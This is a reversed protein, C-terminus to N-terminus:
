PRIVVRIGLVGGKHGTQIYTQLKCNVKGIIRAGYLWHNGNPYGISSLFIWENDVSDNDTNGNSQLRGSECALQYEGRSKGTLNNCIFSNDCGGLGMNGIYSFASPLHSGTKQTWALLYKRRNESITKKYWNVSNSNEKYKDYTIEEESDDKHIYTMDTGLDKKGDICDAIFLAPIPHNNPPTANEIWDIDQLEGLNSRNTRLWKMRGVLTDEGEFDSTAQGISKCSYSDKSDLIRTQGRQPISNGGDKISSADWGRFYEYGNDNGWGNWSIGQSPGDGFDGIRPSICFGSGRKTGIYMDNETPVWNWLAENCISQSVLPGTEVPQTNESGGEGSGGQVSVLNDVIPKKDIIFQEALLKKQKETKTDLIQKYISDNELITGSYTEQIKNIVEIKEEETSSNTILSVPNLTIDLTGTKYGIIKSVNPFNGGGNIVQSKITNQDLVIGSDKIESNIISPTPIVYSKTKVFVQNYDGKIETAYNSKPSNPVFSYSSDPEFVGLIEYEKLNNTVSYIYETELLPDLPLETLNKSLNLEINKGIKGQTWALEGSFSVEQGSDPLPYKGARLFFLGLSKKINDMDSVRIANRAQKSYGQFSMFAITGLIAIITIVVILEVLTFANRNKTKM